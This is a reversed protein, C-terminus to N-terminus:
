RNAAIHNVSGKSLHDRLKDFPEPYMDVTDFAPQGGFQLWLLVSQVNVFYYFMSMKIYYLYDQLYYIFCLLPAPDHKLYATM